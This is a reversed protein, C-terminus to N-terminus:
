CASMYKALENDLDDVQNIVNFRSVLANHQEHLKEANTYAVRDVSYSVGLGFLYGVVQDVIYSRFNHPLKNNPKTIEQQPRQQIPIGKYKYRQYLDSTLKRNSDTLSILSTIVEHNPEIREMYYTSRM